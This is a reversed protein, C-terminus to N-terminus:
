PLSSSVQSEYKAFWTSEFSHPLIICFFSYLLLLALFFIPFWNSFM